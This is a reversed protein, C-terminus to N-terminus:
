RGGSRVVVTSIGAEAASRGARRWWIAGVGGRSLGDVVVKVWLVHSVVSKFVCAGAYFNHSM